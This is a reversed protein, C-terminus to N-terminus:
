YHLTPAGQPQAPKEEKRSMFFAIFFLMLPFFNLIDGLYFAAKFLYRFKDYTEYAVIDGIARTVTFILYSLLLGIAALAASIKLFM